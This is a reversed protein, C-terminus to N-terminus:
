AVKLLEVQFILTQRPPIPGGGDEGYGLEHPIAFEFTEGEQMLQLGETWGRIVANLPFTAPDRRKYSSDFETGDILAGAYHVTVRSRATPRAGPKAADKVKRYRLGSATKRVGERADYGDLFKQNDADSLPM